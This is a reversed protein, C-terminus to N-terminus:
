NGPWMKFARLWSCAVEHEENEWFVMGLGCTSHGSGGTPWKTNKTNWFVMRTGYNSQRCGVTPGKTIKANGCCWDRTM